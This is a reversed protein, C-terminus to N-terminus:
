NHSTSSNNKIKYQLKIYIVNWLLKLAPIGNEAHPKGWMFQTKFAVFAVCKLGIDKLCYIYNDIVSLLFIKLFQFVSKEARPRRHM